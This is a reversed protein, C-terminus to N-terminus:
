HNENDEERMIMLGIIIALIHVLALPINEPIHEVVRAALPIFMLCIIYNFM